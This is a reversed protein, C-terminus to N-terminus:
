IMMAGSISVFYLFIFNTVSCSVVIDNPNCLQRLSGFMLAVLEVQM